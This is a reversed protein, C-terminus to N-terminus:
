LWREDWTKIRYLTPQVQIPGLLFLVARGIFVLFRIKQYGDLIPQITVLPLNIPTNGGSLDYKPQLSKEYEIKHISKSLWDYLCRIVGASPLHPLM